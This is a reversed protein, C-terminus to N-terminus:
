GGEEHFGDAWIEWEGKCMLWDPIHLGEHELLKKVDPPSLWM